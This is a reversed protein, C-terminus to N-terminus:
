SLSVEVVGSDTTVELNSGDLKAEVIQGSGGVPTGDSGVVQSPVSGDAPVYAIVDWSGDLNEPIVFAGGFFALSVPTGSLTFVTSQYAGSADTEALVYGGDLQVLSYYQDHYSLVDGSAVQQTELGTGQGDSTAATTSSLANSFIVILAIVIAAAAIGIGIFLKRNVQLGQSRREVRPRNRGQLRVSGRREKHQMHSRAAAAAEEANDRSTLVAGEGSSLKEFSGTEAPDVGIPRPADSENALPDEGVMPRGGAYPAASSPYGTVDPSFGREAQSTHRAHRPATGQRTRNLPM